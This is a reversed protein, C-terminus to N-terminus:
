GLLLIFLKSFCLFFLVIGGSIGKKLDKDKIELKKKVFYYYEAWIVVITAVIFEYPLFLFFLMEMGCTIFLRYVAPVLCLLLLFSSYFIARVRSKKQTFSNM